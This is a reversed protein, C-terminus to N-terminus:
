FKWVVGAALEKDSGSQATGYTKLDMYIVHLSAAKTMPHSYVYTFGKYGDGAGLNAGNFPYAVAGIGSNYQDVSNADVKQYQVTFSDKDWSYTGAFFFAKNLTDADSKVYEGNLTFNPSLAFSANLGWNKLGKVAPNSEKTGAYTLGYAFKDNAKTSLDVGYWESAIGVTRVSATTTKGGMLTVGFDGMKTTAVVGDLKNDIGVDSGTSIITGQGLSVAQRGITFKWNDATLKVGYQDFENQKETTNVQSGFANRVGLRGFFATNEDVKGEFGVRARFQWFSFKDTAGNIKDDIARGQLRFDGNFEVPFALATGALSLVFSVVLALVLSKKM